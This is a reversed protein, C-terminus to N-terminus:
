YNIRLTTHINSISLFIFGKIDFHLYFTVNQYTKQLATM